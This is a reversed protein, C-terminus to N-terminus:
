APPLADIQAALQHCRETVRGRDHSVIELTLRNYRLTVDPHHDMREAILAVRTLFAFAEPFDGFVLEKRLRGDLEAWATM